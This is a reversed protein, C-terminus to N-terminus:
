GGLQPEPMPETRWGLLKRFKPAFGFGYDLRKFDDPAIEVRGLIPHTLVLGGPTDSRDLPGILTARPGLDCTWRGTSRRTKIRAERPDAEGEAPPVVHVVAALVDTSITMEGGAGGDVVLKSGERGIVNCRMLDGNRALLLHTGPDDRQSRPVLLARQLKEETVLSRDINKVGPRGGVLARDRPDMAASGAKVAIETLLLDAKRPDYLLAKVQDTRLTVADESFPTEVVILEQGVEAIRGPFTQGDSLLVDHPFRTRSAHFLSRSAREIWVQGGVAGRVPTKFGPESRLVAYGDEGREVGLFGAIMQSGGDFSMRFEAGGRGRVTLPMRVEHFDEFPIEIPGEAYPSRLIFRGRQYIVRRVAIAEGSRTAFRGQGGEHRVAQLEPRRDRTLFSVGQSGDFAAPGLATELWRTVPDFGQVESGRLARDFRVLGDEGVLEDPDRVDVAVLEVPRGLARISLQDPAATLPVRGDVELRSGDLMEVSDFVLADGGEFRLHLVAGSDNPLASPAMALELGDDGRGFLVPVGDWTQLTLGGIDVRFEALGRWRLDIAVHNGTFDAMRSVVADRSPLVLVSGEVRAGGGLEAWGEWPKVPPAPGDLESPAASADGRPRVDGVLERPVAIDGLKASRFTVTEGIVGTLEGLFREAGVVTMVDSSSLDPTPEGELLELRRVKPFDIAAPGGLRDCDLVLDGSEDVFLAGTYVRENAFTVRARSQAAAPAHLLAAASLLLALRPGIM